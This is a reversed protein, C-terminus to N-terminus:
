INSQKYHKAFPNWKKIMAHILIEKWVHGNCSNVCGIVWNHWM